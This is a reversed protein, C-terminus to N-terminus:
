TEISLFSVEIKDLNCAVWSLQLARLFCGTKTWNSAKEISYGRNDSDQPGNREM